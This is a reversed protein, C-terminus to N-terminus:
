QQRLGKAARSQTSTTLQDFDQLFPMEGRRQLTNGASGAYNKFNQNGTSEHHNSSNAHIEQKSALLESFWLKLERALQGTHQNSKINLKEAIKVNLSQRHVAKEVLM